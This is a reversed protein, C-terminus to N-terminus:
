MSGVGSVPPAGTMAHLRQVTEPDLRLASALQRLYQREEETDVHIALLTAGYVEAAQASNRVEAAIADIDIPSRMEDLVFQREETTVSSADLKGLIKEIEDKDIQGDAKAGNIMARVLLRENERSTLAALEDPDVRDSDAGSAVGMEAEAPASRGGGKLAGLALTGLVAMATGRAAGKLGGGLLAGAAAGIGSVQAGSLGGLQDNRMFGKARDVFSGLAGRDTSSNGGGDGLMNQLSSLISNAGSGTSELNRATNDLRTRTPAGQGLGQQLFQGLIDGFSM